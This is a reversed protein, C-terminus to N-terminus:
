IIEAEVRKPNFSVRCVSKFKNNEMIGAYMTRGIKKFYQFSMGNSFRIVNKVKIVNGSNIMKRNEITEYCRKRWNIAYNNEEIDELPTLLKLIREPCEAECPGAFETMDKYCFNYDGKSWQLLYVACFVENTEVNKIAAYLTNRKVVAVNLVMIEPNSEWQEVFWEKVPETMRLSTWGM